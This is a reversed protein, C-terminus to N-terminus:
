IQTALKRIFGALGEATSANTMILTHSDVPFAAQSQTVQDTAGAARWVHAMNPLEHFDITPLSVEATSKEDSNTSWQTGTPLANKACDTLLLRNNTM